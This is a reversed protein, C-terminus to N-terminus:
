GTLETGCIDHIEEFTVQEASIYSDCTPCWWDIGNPRFIKILKNNM